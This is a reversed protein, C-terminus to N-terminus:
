FARKNEALLFSDIDRPSEFRGTKEQLYQQFKLMRLVFKGYEEDCELGSINDKYRGHVIKGIASKARSDYIFFKDPCHFHLYKSVFSTNRQRTIETIINELFLHTSLIENICDHITRDDNRLLDLRADLEEGIGKIKPVVEYFYFDDGRFDGANNRREISAAYSRGILWIKGAIVDDEDHYPKEKCMDYLIRNGFTWRSHEESARYEEYQNAIKNDVIAM